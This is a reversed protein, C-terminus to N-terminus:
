PEDLFYDREEVNEAVTELSSLPQFILLSATFGHIFNQVGVPGLEGSAQIGAIPTEPFAEQVCRLDHNPEGFLSTGRGNCSMLLIGAPAPAEESAAFKLLERFERDATKADRVQYQVTQGAEVSDGIMIEGTETNASLVNRIVFDGRDFDTQYENMAIGILLGTQALEQTEEPMRELVEEAYELATKDGITYVIDHEARTVLARDGVPTCGQSVVTRLGINGSITVGVAGETYVTKHLLLVNEGEGGGSAMGGVIPAFETFSMVAEMAEVIPCTFPDGFLLFGRLDEDNPYGLKEWFSMVGGDCDLIEYDEDELYFPNLRVGPLCAAFLGIAPSNEIEARDGIIGEASCGILTKPQVWRFVLDIIDEAADKHHTSLFVIVLDPKGLLQRRLSTAAERVADKTQPKQSVASAFQLRSM